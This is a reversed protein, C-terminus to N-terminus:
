GAESIEVSFVPVFLKPGSRLDVTQIELLIIKSFTKAITVTCITHHYLCVKANLWFHAEFTMQNQWHDLELPYQRYQLVQTLISPLESSCGLELPYQRYQLVQTLISPLESNCGLELPYQMGTSSLLVQTPISPLESNCGLEL